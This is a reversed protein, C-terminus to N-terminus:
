CVSVDKSGFGEYQEVTRRRKGHVDMGGGDGGEGRTGIDVLEMERRERKVGMIRKKQSAEISELNHYLKELRAKIDSTGTVNSPGSQMVVSAAATEGPQLAPVEKELASVSLSPGDNDHQSDNEQARSPVRGGGAGVASSGKAQAATFTGTMAEGDGSVSGKATIATPVDVKNDAQVVGKSKGGWRAPSGGRALWSERPARAM